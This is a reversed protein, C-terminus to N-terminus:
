WDYTAGLQVYRPQESGQPLQYFASPQALSGYFARYQTIKQENFVNNVLIQFGLKKDAWLPRYEASLGLTHTWPTRGTSGPPTPVGGCFHYTNYGLGPNYNAAPDTGYYNGLCIKPTGSAIRVNASLLFEPTLQYSGYAIFKHKQDNSQYGNSYTTLEGYDYNETISQSSGGQGISSIVPGEVSGFSRSYVYDARASWKGDWPHELNFDLGYYKRKVPNFGAQKPTIKLPYLTGNNLPINVIFPSGPNIIVSSPIQAPDYDIGQQDLLKQMTLYDGYDDIIRGLRTVTATVGGVLGPTIQQQFGLVYQDQYEAKANKSTVLRPDKAVGYEGNLSVKGDAPQTPTIATTGTPVGNPDIGTYTYYQQTYVSAGAARLAVSTPLALYYRGANGFIKLTSDGHVDWAFGLRPAWQPKTLRLYPVGSTNYNTFQDNRLGINALFNPTIQWNDEIYQARQKVRVSATSSQIYKSVYYGDAGGPFAGPGPVYPAQAPDNGVIPSNPGGRDYDWDYGPGNQAQGDSVDQTDINDIGFQVDHNGLRWDLDLRFNRVRSKHDANNVSVVTNANTIQSRGGLYLPNQGGSAVIIHPLNADPSGPTNTYYTGHMKGYIANLTLNDTIYSTYHAVWIKYANKHSTDNSALDEVKRTDNNYNYIAGRFHDANEIGTLALTNSSNINWDLKAYIKPDHYVYFERQGAGVSYNQNVTQKNAEASLFFFLKDKILPGGVYADYTTTWGSNNNRYTRLAGKQQSGSAPTGAKDMYRPNNYHYNTATGELFSPRWLAQAGFHWENTGSKGIQSIVGGASRGYKAGYGSTLTQQQSISGYPLSIGGTNSLPDSTNFGNIYYANEVVSSGGFSVLPGRLPGNGLLAAGQNTGPALLAIAEATRGIPLHKLQEATIVVNQNTSAVDIAPISNATVTIASLDQANIGSASSGASSASFDVTATGSATAVVNNKSQITKGDQLLTVNYTGVPLTVSYRGNNDVGVTRNFGSGGTVNVTEGAAVPAQGAIAGTTSQAMVPGTLGLGLALSVSLATLRLQAGRTTHFKSM